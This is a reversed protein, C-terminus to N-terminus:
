SHIRIRELDRHEPLDMGYPDELFDNWSEKQKQRLLATVSMELM